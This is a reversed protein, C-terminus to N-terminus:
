WQWKWWLSNQRRGWRAIERMWSDSIRRVQIRLISQLIIRIVRGTWLCALRVATTLYYPFHRAMKSWNQCGRGMV